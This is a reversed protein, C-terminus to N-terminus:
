GGTAETTTANLVRARKAELNLTTKIDTSDVTEDARDFIDDSEEHLADQECPAGRGRGNHEAMIQETINRNVPYQAAWQLCYM